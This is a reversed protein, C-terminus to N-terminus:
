RFNFSSGCKCSQKINPNNFIFNNTKMLNEIYDLETGKLYDYSYKDIALKFDGYDIVIDSDKVANDFETYYKYGACGEEILSVRFVPNTLQKKAALKKIAKIARDTLTFEVMTEM